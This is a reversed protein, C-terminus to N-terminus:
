FCKLRNNMKKTVKQEVARDLQAKLTAVQANAASLSDRGRNQEEALRTMKDRRETLEEMHERCEEIVRRAEQRADELHARLKSNTKRADRLEIELKESKERKESLLHEIEKIRSAELILEDRLADKDSASDRQDRHGHSVSEDSHGHSSESHRDRIGPIPSENSRSAAGFTAPLPPLPVAPPPGQPPVNPNSKRGSRQELESVRRTLDANATELENKILELQSNLNTLEAVRKGDANRQLQHQDRVRSLDFMAQDAKMKLQRRQEESASLSREMEEALLENDSQLTALAADHSKELDVMATTHASLQEQLRTEYTSAAEQLETRIEQLAKDHDAQLTSITLAHAHLVTKLEEAHEEHLHNGVHSPATFIVKSKLSSSPSRDSMPGTQLTRLDDQSPSLALGGLMLQERLRNNSKQLDAIQIFQQDIIERQSAEKLAMEKTLNDIRPDIEDPHASNEEVLLASGKTPPCTKQSSPPLGTTLIPKALLPVEFTEANPSPPLPILAPQPSPNPTLLDSILSKASSKRSPILHTQTQRLTNELQRIYAEREKLEEDREEVVRHVFRLEAELSQSTRLPPQMVPMSQKSPSASFLLTSPAGWSGRPSLASSQASSLEQSLSQPRLRKSEGFGRGGRFDRGKSNASFGITSIVPMSGRRSARKKSIPTPTPSGDRPTQLTTGSESSGDDGDPSPHSLVPSASVVDHIEDSVLKAEALQTTLEVVRNEAQSCRASIEELASRLHTAEDDHHDNVWRGSAPSEPPTLEALVRAPSHPPLGDKVNDAVLTPGKPLASSAAQLGELQTHLQLRAARETELNGDLRAVESQHAGAADKQSQELEAILRDKAELESLLLKNDNSTDLLSIHAELDRYAGDRAAAEQEYREIQRGLDASHSEAHSLRTELDTTSASMNHNSAKLDAIQKKLNNVIDTHIDAKEAHTKLKGELDHIYAESSLNRESLKAVRGKLEAIYTDSQIQRDMATRLERAQDDFMENITSLEVRLEDLQKNLGAVVKEYELIVPEVIENFKDLADGEGPRANKLESTLRINESCKALYRDYLETHERQLDALRYILKENGIRMEESEPPTSGLKINTGDLEILALQKRLKLVTNQLHEVDDWGAEVANIKAANKINRARSAYKITNLTETINAEIGSVCAIMTTLANGGISDQLMRTLKSDRYPVHGRSKIPDCLTSIVNGLALLGSNISIGERMRDGQAATRKLRESGALDVMNFKSTVVVFDGDPPNNSVLMSMPRPLGPKTSSNFSSPPIAHRAGSPTPSRSGHFGITSSPRRLTRTPTDSALPQSASTAIGVRKKQVLTLSFIAHSRSSTANMTTEGTKRRASGQQLLQMVEILTKVKIERVGAWIIRGDREERITVAVGSGSLLDIIEENYLELFSLRCEWSSGPGNALRMEEAQEFIAQVTRPILGTRPNFDVGTYDADEGTTGMTYSKGSSTQGYALFTVNHGKLYEDVVDASTANYVDVQSSEETLVSDFSFTPHRKSTSAFGGVHGALTAPDVDVRIDTSSTPHVLTSRLRPPVSNDDPDSPRIRLVVRVNRADMEDKGGSASTVDSSRRIHHERNQGAVSHPRPISSTFPSPSPPAPSVASTRRNSYMM